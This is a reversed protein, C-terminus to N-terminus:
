QGRLRPDMADRLGDGMLNFCLVAWVICLGPFTALWPSNLLAKRGDATLSGWTPTPESVGLGLFSLSSEALITSGIALSAYVIVPALANPIIHVYLVRLPSFGLSRAAQVFEQESLSLVQSRVIRAIGMWGTTALVIVILFIKRGGSLDLKAFIGLIALLLVLRPFALLFDVVWMILSDVRGGFYGAIAGLSTGITVAIFVAVFGISLSIKAGHLLRALLDRGTGDTGLFHFFWVENNQHWGPGQLGLSDMDLEPHYTSLFPTLFALSILLSAGVMGFMGTKHKRFARLFAQRNSNYVDDALLTPFARRWALVWMGGVLGLFYLSAVIGHVSMHTGTREWLVDTIRTVGFCMCTVILLFHLSLGFGFALDGHQGHTQFTLLAEDDASAIATRAAATNQGKFAKAVRRARWQARFTLVWPLLHGLGPLMLGALAFKTRQQTRTGVIATM